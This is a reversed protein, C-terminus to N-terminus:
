LSGSVTWPAMLPAAITWDPPRTSFFVTFTPILPFSSKMKIWFALIQHIQVDSIDTHWSQLREVGVDSQGPVSPWFWVNQLFVFLTNNHFICIKWLLVKCTTDTQRNRRACVSEQHSGAVAGRWFFFFFSSFGKWSWNTCILCPGHNTTISGGHCGCVCFGKKPEYQFSLSPLSRMVALVHLHLHVRLGGSFRKVQFFNFFYIAIKFLSHKAPRCEEYAVSHYHYQCVSVCRACLCLSQVTQQSFEVSKKLGNGNHNRNMSSNKLQRM